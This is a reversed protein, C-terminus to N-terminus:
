RTEEADGRAFQTEIRVFEALRKLGDLALTQREDGTIEAWEVRLCAVRGRIFKPKFAPV